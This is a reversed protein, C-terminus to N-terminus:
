GSNVAREDVGVSGPATQTPDATQAVGVELLSNM